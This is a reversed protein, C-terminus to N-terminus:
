GKVAVGMVKGDAPDPYSLSPLHRRGSPPFCQIVPGVPAAVPTPHPHTLTSPDRAAMAVTLLCAPFSNGWEEVEVPTKRASGNPKGWRRKSWLSCAKRTCTHTNMHKGIGVPVRPQLGRQTEILSMHSILFFVWLVWPPTM